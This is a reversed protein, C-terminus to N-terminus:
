SAGATLVQYPGRDLIVSKRDSPARFGQGAIWRPLQEGSYCFLSSRYVLRLFGVSPEVAPFASCCPMTSHEPRSLACFVDRDDVAAPSTELHLPEEYWHTLTEEASLTPKGGHLPEGM